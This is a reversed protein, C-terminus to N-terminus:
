RHCTSCSTIADPGLVHYEQVLQRGISEQVPGADYSMNTIESVPRLYQQPNRHCELCWEMRLANEAYVVSMQDVRGHCTVCGVGKNVHISHNFFVYDGLDHVRNWQIPEGTEWSKRVLELNPSDARIARHCNMCTETPPIGAFASSEVSTHCYRCDIGDVGSHIEHSFPVPQEIPIRAGTSIPARQIQNSFGYLAALGILGGFITVRTIFNARRGFARPM